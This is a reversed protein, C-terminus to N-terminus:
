SPARLAMCRWGKTCCEQLLASLKVACGGDALQWRGAPQRIPDLGWRRAIEITAWSTSAPSSVLITQEKQQGASLCFRGAFNPHWNAVPLGPARSVPTECHMRNTWPNTGISQAPYQASPGPASACICYLQIRRNCYRFPHMATGDRQGDQSQVHHNTQHLNSFTQSLRNRSLPHQLQWCHVRSPTLRQCTACSAVSNLDRIQIGRVWSELSEKLYEASKVFRSGEHIQGNTSM